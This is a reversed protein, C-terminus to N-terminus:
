QDCISLMELLTAVFHYWTDWLTLNQNFTKRTKSIYTHLIIGAFTLLWCKIFYQIIIKLYEANDIYTSYILILHNLFNNILFTLPLLKYYLIWFINWEICFLPYKKELCFCELTKWTRKALFVKFFVCREFKKKNQRSLLEEGDDPRESKFATIKRRLSRSWKLALNFGNIAGLTIRRPEVVALQCLPTKLRSSSGGVQANKRSKQGSVPPKLKLTHWLTKGNPSLGKRITM